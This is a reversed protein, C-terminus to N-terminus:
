AKRADYFLCSFLHFTCCFFLLLVALCNDIAILAYDAVRSIEDSLCSLFGIGFCVRNSLSFELYDCFCNLMRRFERCCIELFCNVCYPNVPNSYVHFASICSERKATHILPQLRIEFLIHCLKLCFLLAICIDLMSDLKDSAEIDIALIM